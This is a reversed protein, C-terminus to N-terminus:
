KKTQSKRLTAALRGYTISAFLTSLTLVGILGNAARNHADWTGTSLKFVFYALYVIIMSCLVWIVIKLNKLRLKLAEAKEPLHQQQEM